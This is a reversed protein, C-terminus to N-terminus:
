KAFPDGKWDAIWLQSSPKMEGDIKPGRQSTWIVRSGDTNFAPLVDAGDASTIRRTRAGAVKVSAGGGGKAAEGLKVRDIEIAFVEYNAHSVESTAYVMFKGSPHWYPCWSVHENDTLQYEQTIGVPVEVGDEGKEFKLDAVFIQLLDNGKRDSRYCISRGDPGFFPGGDYGPAVVIPYQKRTKMDYIYINADAKAAHAVQGHAKGEDGKPADEIHSYLLFRGSKDFSCEADYNPRSFVPKAYSGKLGFDYQPTGLKRYKVPDRSQEAGVADVRAVVVEMEAPFAWRYKSTGRQYGAPGEDKPAVLTSGFLVIGPETPHFWGCTNASGAPSVREVKTFANGELRAVYMAYFGDPEKDKGPVEVAQFIVWKGDSSFYSEGAKVYKDRFTVQKQGTVFPAELKAWDLPPAPPETPAAPAAPPQAALATGALAVFSAVLSFHKLIM